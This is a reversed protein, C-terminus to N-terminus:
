KKYTVNISESERMHKGIAHRNFTVKDKIFEPLNYSFLLNEYFRQPHKQPLMFPKHAKGNEDIYTFFLRTYLGDVRRSSFVMWRNNDSWSHYSESQDSNIEDLSYINNNSLDLMYLDADKQWISFNGYQHLTFALYKGDPSVRPFSVSMKTDRANYLTDVKDGFTETEADFDIRCLSYHTDLYVGPMPAVSDASCFYLSKGDPSFSPFTEFAKKSSILPSSFIEKKELNYLVVDSESDYVEMYNVNHTFVALRTQNTSFAAYKESPHWYLYVLPSITEDTKTNLKEIKDHNLYVMGGNRTRMHLIMKNPDRSPFSHCNVCNYTTIKNEFIPTQDFNELNRQYIGMKEWFIYGPAVLRYAIYKDVKDKVISISFPKMSKWEGGVKKCVTLNIKSGQETELLKKWAKQPIEFYGDDGKVTIKQQQGEIVLRTPIGKADQLIFNLPAINVPITVDKYDPFINPEENISGTIQIDHNCAALSLCFIFCGIYKTFFKM